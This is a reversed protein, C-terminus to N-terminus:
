NLYFTFEFKDNFLDTYQVIDIPLGMYRRYYVRRYNKLNGVWIMM